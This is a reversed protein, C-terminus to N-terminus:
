IRVANISSADTFLEFQKEFDPLKLVPAETIATKVADFVRQAEVSWCFKKFKKKLNYLSECLDAYNKIFKSYWQSMGLFKSVEKSNKPPKMEVIARAKKENTTIGDKSIILGRSFNTSSSRNRRDGRSFNQSQVINGSQHGRDFRRDDKNLESRSCFWQNRQCGFEYNGRYNNRGNSPRHLVESNRWNRDITMILCGVRMEVDDNLM